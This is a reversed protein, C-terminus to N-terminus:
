GNDKGGLRAEIEIADQVTWYRWGNSEFRNPEPLRGDKIMRDITKKSKGLRKALQSSSLMHSPYLPVAAM